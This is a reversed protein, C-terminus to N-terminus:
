ELMNLQKLIDYKFKSLPRKYFDKSKDEVGFILRYVEEPAFKGGFLEQLSKIYSGSYNKKITLLDSLESHHSNYVEDVLMEQLTFRSRSNGAVTDKLFIRYRDMKKSYFYGFEFDENQTIDVYPHTNGVLDFPKDGKVSSNCSYCSPILNYFSTALLPYDSKAFWHDLTTRIVNKGDRLRIVTSTYTRNCYTCTNRGLASSLDYANYYKLKKDIFRDYDFIDNVQDVLKYLMVAFPKLASTSNSAILKRDFYPKIEGFTFGPMVYEWFETNIQPLDAPSGRLILAVNLPDELFEKIKPFLEKKVGYGSKCMKCNNDGCSDIGIKKNVFCRIEKYHTEEAGIIQQSNVDIYFM